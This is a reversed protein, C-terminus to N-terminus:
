HEGNVESLSNYYKECSILEPVVSIGKSQLFAILEREKKFKNTERENFNYAFYIRNSKGNVLEICTGFLYNENFQFATINSLGCLLEGNNSVDFQVVNSEDFLEAADLVEECHLSYPYRLPMRYYDRFGLYTYFESSVNGKVDLPEMEMLKLIQANNIASVTNYKDGLSDMKQLNKLPVALVEETVQQIKGVAKRVGFYITFVLAILSFLGAILWIIATRDKVPKSFKVLALILAVLMFAGLLLALVVLLFGNVM